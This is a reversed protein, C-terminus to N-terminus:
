PQMGRGTGLASRGRERVLAFIRHDHQLPAERYLDSAYPVVEGGAIRDIEVALQRM